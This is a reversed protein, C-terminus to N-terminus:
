ISKANILMEKLWTMRTEEDKKKVCKNVTSVNGIHVVKERARTEGVYLQNSSLNSEHEKATILIVYKANGGQSKTISMSYGLKCTELEFNSYVVKVGDFNILCYNKYIREIKGVDGNCILTQNYEEGYKYSMEISENMDFGMNVYQMSKYNNKTQLILDEEYFKQNDSELFKDNGISKINAIPQVMKNIVTSGNEGVNYPSLILIDEAPTKELLKSYTKKILAM